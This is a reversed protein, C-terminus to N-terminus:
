LKAFPLRMVLGREYDDFIGALHHACTQFRLDDESWVEFTIRNPCPVMEGEYINGCRGNVRHGELSYVEVDPHSEILERIHFPCFHGPPEIRHTSIEPCHWIENTLPMRSVYECAPTYGRMYNQFPM